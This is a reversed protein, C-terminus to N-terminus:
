VLGHQERSRAERNVRAMIEAAQTASDEGTELKLLVQGRRQSQDSLERDGGQVGWGIFTGLMAGVFGGSFIAGLAIEAWAMEQVALPAHQLGLTPLYVVGIGALAGSVAGWLAGGAAGSLITELIRSGRHKRSREKGDKVPLTDMANTAFGENNLAHMAQGADIESDYLRVVVQRGGLGRMQQIQRVTAQIAQYQGRVLEALREPLGARLASQYARLAAHEGVLVEKLVIRERKLDGISMAAFIDVRGRHIMAMFDVLSRSGTNAVGAQEQLAARFDARQEAFSKFLMKLGRNNVNAAAVAYGREGADLIADLHALARRTRGNMEQM